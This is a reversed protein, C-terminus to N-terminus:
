VAARCQLAALVEDPIASLPLIKHLIGGEACVRPMGYVASTAQDQGITIGGANRIATMGRLGDNGMGTLIVGLAYRGFVRAASLMAVDVSPKHPTDAPIETLYVCVVAQSNLFLITHLGAPAVYATGPQLPEGQQAEHVRLRCFGDLRRAFPGTFGPPMHQVILIPVPLDGPLNTLVDQLANPGGTSAGIVVIRPLPLNDKELRSDRRFPTLLPLSVRERQALVSQAAAEIKDLLVQRLLLGSSACWLEEKPIYDFAGADLAELTVEAGHLTQSSIMIVPCPYESMIQKLAQIGDLVPMEVDLTIVDPKLVRAKVVAEKGDRAFGCIQIRPDSKLMQSLATRMVASDDAVLVQITRLPHQSM